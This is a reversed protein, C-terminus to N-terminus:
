ASPVTTGPAAAATPVLRQEIARILMLRRHLPQLLLGNVLAALAAVAPVSAPRWPERRWVTEIVPLINRKRCRISELREHTAAL